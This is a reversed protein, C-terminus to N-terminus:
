APDRFSLRVGLRGSEMPVVLWGAGAETEPVSRPAAIQFGGRPELRSLANGCLMNALELLVLNVEPETVTREDERGLFSAALRRAVGAEADVELRGDRTGSFEVLSALGARPPEAQRVLGVPFEFFMTELVEVAAAAMEHAAGSLGEAVAPGAESDWM